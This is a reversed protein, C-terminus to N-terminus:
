CSLADTNKQTSDRCAAYSNPVDINFVVVLIILLKISWHMNIGKMKGKKLVQHCTYCSVHM